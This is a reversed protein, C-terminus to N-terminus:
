QQLKQLRQQLEMTSVTTAPDREIHRLGVGSYQEVQDNGYDVQVLDASLADIILIFHVDAVSKYAAPDVDAYDKVGEIQGVTKMMQIFATPNVAVDYIYAKRGNYVAQKVKSYDIKYVKDRKVQDIVATRTAPNLRAFPVAVNQGYLQTLSNNTTDAPSQAWVGLISSFDFPKGTSNTQSTKVDVLRVFNDTLTILSERKVYSGGNGVQNIEVQAHIRAEPTTQLHTNQKVNQAESDVTSSKVVSSTTFANELMRNFVREPATYARMALGVGSVGLLLVGIIVFVTILKKQKSM